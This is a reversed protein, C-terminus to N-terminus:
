DRIELRQRRPAFMQQHTQVATRALPTHLDGIQAGELDLQTAVECPPGIQEVLVGLLSALHEPRGCGRADARPRHLARM